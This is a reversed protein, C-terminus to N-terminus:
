LINKLLGGPEDDELYNIADSMELVAKELSNYEELSTEPRVYLNQSPDLDKNWMDDFEEAYSPDIKDGEIDLIEAEIENLNSGFEEKNDLIHETAALARGLRRYGELSVQRKLEDHDYSINYEWRDMLEGFLFLFYKSDSNNKKDLYIDRIKNINNQLNKLNDNISISQQDKGRASIMVVLQYCIIILKQIENLIFGILFGLGSILNLLNSLTKLNM